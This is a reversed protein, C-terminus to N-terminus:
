FKAVSLKPEKKPFGHYESSGWKEEALKEHTELKSNMRPTYNRHFIVREFIDDLPAM